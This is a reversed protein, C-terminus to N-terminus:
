RADSNPSVDGPRREGEGRSEVTSATLRLLEGLDHLVWVLHVLGFGSLGGRVMPHQLWRATPHTLQSLLQDWGATWPALVFVVGVVVCYLIFVFRLLLDVEM